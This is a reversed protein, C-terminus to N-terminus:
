RELKGEFRLTEGRREENTTTDTWFANGRARVVVPVSGPRTLIVVKRLATIQMQDLYVQIESLPGGDGEGQKREIEQLYGDSTTRERRAHLAPDVRTAVHDVLGEPGEIEVVDALLVSAKQFSKTWPKGPRVTSREATPRAEDRTKGACGGLTVFAALVVISTFAAPRLSSPKM